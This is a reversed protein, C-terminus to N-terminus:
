ACAVSPLGRRERRLNVRLMLIEGKLRQHEEDSALKQKAREIDLADRTDEFSGFMAESGETSFTTRIDAVDCHMGAAAKRDTMGSWDGSSAAETADSIKMGPPLEMVTGPVMEGTPLIVFDSAAKLKALLVEKVAQVLACFASFALLAICLIEVTSM